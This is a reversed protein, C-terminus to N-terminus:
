AGLKKLHDRAKKQKALAENILRQHEPVPPPPPVYRHYKVVQRFGYLTADVTDPFHGRIVDGVAEPNWEPIGLKTIFGSLATAVKAKGTRLADRLTICAAPKGMKQAEAVYLAHVQRLDVIVGKGGGGPDGYCGVLGNQYRTIFQQVLAAQATSGLCAQEDVDVLYIFPSADTYAWVAVAAADVTGFDAGILFNWKGAPLGTWRQYVHDWTGRDFGNRVAEYSFIQLKGDAVFACFFETQISPDSEDVGGDECAKDVLKRAEGPPLYPNDFPTWKGHRTFGAGASKKGPDANGTAIEYWFGHPSSGTGAFIVAGSVAMLSPYVVKKYFYRLLEDDWDQSEDIAYLAVKKLGRIKNAMKKNECGTIKLKGAGPFRIEHRGENVKGGLKYDENFLVLEDWVTTIARTIDTSVYLVQKGRNAPDSAVKILLKELADTKGSQRGAPWAQFRAPHFVRIRQPESLYPTPDWGPKCASIPPPERRQQEALVAALLAAKYASV